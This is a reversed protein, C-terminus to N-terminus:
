KTSVKLSRVAIRRVHDNEGDSTVHKFMRKPKSSPSSGFRKTANLCEDISDKKAQQLQAQLPKSLKRQRLLDTLQFEKTSDTLTILYMPPKGETSDKIEIKLRKSKGLM